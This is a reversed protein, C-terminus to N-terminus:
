LFIGIDKDLAKVKGVSYLIKRRGKQSESRLVLSNVLNSDKEPIFFNYRNLSFEPQNDNLDKLIIEILISSKLPIESRINVATLYFKYSTKIERDLRDLSDNKVCIIGTIHDVTFLDMANYKFRTNRSRHTRSYKDDNIENLEYYIESNEKTVDEDTVTIKELCFKSMDAPQNKGILGDKRGFWEFM